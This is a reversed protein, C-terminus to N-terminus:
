HLLPHACLPVRVVGFPSSPFCPTWWGWLSCPVQALRALWTFAHPSTARWSGAPFRVPCSTWRSASLPWTPQSPRATPLTAAQLALSEWFTCQM